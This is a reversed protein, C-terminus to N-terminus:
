MFRIFILPASAAAAAMLTCALLPTYDRYLVTGFGGLGGLWSAFAIHLPVLVVALFVLEGFIMGLPLSIAFGAAVVCAAAFMWSGKDLIGSMARTPEYFLRLLLRVNHMM